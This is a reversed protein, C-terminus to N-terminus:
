GFRLEKDCLELAAPRHTIIMVTKDTLDKLNKLLQRETEEDLASTSEDLLLIPCDAFIARAIAIRQMQGESLGQGREGLVTEIGQELASVFDEACAIRLARQMGEEDQMRTRDGFAIIERVTGSMLFNEQPVYAFLRRWNKDLTQVKGDRCRLTRRGADTSYLDMMLRFLTSKGCGSQGTLAICQQKKIEMNFHQLIAEGGDKQYSFTVDEFCIAEFETEYFDAVEKKSFASAWVEKEEEVLTREAEILREASAIMAYFRPLIGTIGAFPSQIQGILQLIATFTGYALSGRLIGYGCYGIALLYMGNMAGAFGANCVNSFHNKTMRASKHEAMKDMAQERVQEEVAFARVVVMSGLHEQLFSRLSGDAEQVQKHLRKMIKRFAYTILLMIGGAPLLVFIFEPQLLFLAVAAAIMRVLMGAASPLIGVMGGACVVTDSTLRNMWEGSHVAQLQAYDKYLLGKFVRQKFINELSSSTEEAFFRGLVGLALQGLMVAAMVLFSHRLGTGDGAVAFDILEKLFLAISVALIGSVMQLVLLVLIHLKYKGANECLWYLASNKKM